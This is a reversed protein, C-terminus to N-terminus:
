EHERRWRDIDEKLLQVADFDGDPGEPAPGTDIAHPLNFLNETRVSFDVNCDARPIGLHAFMPDWYGHMLLIHPVGQVECQGNLEDVWDLQGNLQKAAERFRVTRPQKTPTKTLSITVVSHSPRLALYQGTPEGFDEWSCDFPLSGDEVAKEFARDVGWSVLRGYNQRASRIQLIPEEDVLRRVAAYAKRLITPVQQRVTVPFQDELFDRPHVYAM